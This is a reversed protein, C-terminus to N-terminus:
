LKLVHFEILIDSDLEVHTEILIDTNVTRYKQSHTKSHTVKVCKIFCVATM